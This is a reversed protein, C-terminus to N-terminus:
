LGFRVCAHLALPGPEHELSEHSGGEQGEEEVAM